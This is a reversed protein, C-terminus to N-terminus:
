RSLRSDEIGGARRALKVRGALRDSVQGRGAGAWRDLCHEM